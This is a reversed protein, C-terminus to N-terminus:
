SKNAVVEHEEASENKEATSPSEQDDEKEDRKLSRNKVGLGSLSVLACAPVVIIFGYNMASIYATIVAQRTPLPLQFIANVSERVQKILEPTLQSTV